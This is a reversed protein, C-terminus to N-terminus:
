KVEKKRGNRKKLNQQLNITGLIHSWKLDNKWVRLYSAEATLTASVM